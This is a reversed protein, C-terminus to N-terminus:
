KMAERLVELNSEMASIYTKGSAAADASVSQLSDLTLIEQDGSATNDRITGAIAGDSGELKIIARLGLEDAKGSLFAVTRFSAETEASCGPFAAYYAIGYDEFMYRFPFRDGFLVVKHAAEAVTARYKADLEDLRSIYKEANSAYLERNDPDLEGLREAIHGCLVAANRLSLWVHEDYEAGDKHDHADDGHEDQAGEPFEEEVAADGLASLLGVVVTDRRPSNKIVDGIWKASQGDTYVLMDCESLTVIDEATPQYSHIDAGPALLMTVEVRDNNEGVINCVWDYEPFITTVVRIKDDKESPGGGCGAFILNSLLLALILSISKKM